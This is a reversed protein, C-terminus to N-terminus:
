LDILVTTIRIITMHHTSPELGPCPRIEPCSKRWSKLILEAHEFLIISISFSM